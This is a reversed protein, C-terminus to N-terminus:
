SGAYLMDGAACLIVKIAANPALNTEVNNIMLTM